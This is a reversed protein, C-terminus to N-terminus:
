ISMGNKSFISLSSPMWLRCCILPSISFSRGLPLLDRNGLCMMMRALFLSPSFCKYWSIEADLRFYKLRTGVMGLVSSAAWRSPSM